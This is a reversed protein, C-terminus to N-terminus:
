SVGIFQTLSFDLGLWTIPTNTDFVDAKNQALLPKTCFTILALLLLGKLKNYPKM